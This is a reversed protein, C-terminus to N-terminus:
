FFRASSGARARKLLAKEVESLYEPPILCDSDFILYFNGLAKNMGFNRSAGAGSNDKFFYKINLEDSYKAVITDATVTSGDEIVIVEFNNQYTQNTLSNLLEDIENPRNFVPIILSFQLEM